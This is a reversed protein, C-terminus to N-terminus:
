EVDRWVELNTFREMKASGDAKKVTAQVKAVRTITGEQGACDGSVIRVKDGETPRDGDAYAIWEGASQKKLSAKKTPVPPVPSGLNHSGQETNVEATGGSQSGPHSGCPTSTPVPAPSSDPTPATGMSNGDTGMYTNFIPFREDEQTDITGDNKANETGVTGETGQIEGMEAFRRLMEVPITLGWLPRTPTKEPQGNRANALSVDRSIDFKQKDRKIAGEDVLAREISSRNYTPRFTEEIHPWVSAMHIALGKIESSNNKKVLRCNWDGIKSETKLSSICELFGRISDGGESVDNFETCINQSVWQEIDINLDGAQCVLKAYHTVLALSRIVRLSAASMLPSFKDELEKIADPTYGFRILTPLAAGAQKYLTRLETFADKDGNRRKPVFLRLMRTRAPQSKEGFASNSTIMMASHPTQTKHGKGDPGMVVRPFGNYLSKITEDTEPDNKPDDLCYMLSGAIKLKNYMAPLSIRAVMGEDAMGMCALACEAMTSKGTQPDSNYLNLIPFCGQHAMIAQRNVAAAAYGLTMVALHINDPGFAAQMVELFKGLVQNSPPPVKPLPLYTEGEVVDSHWCWLSKEDMTINGQPDFQLGPFVWWGNKQQGVRDVLNYRKGEKDHRYHHLKARLLAQVSGNGLRTAIAGFLAKKLANSFKQASDFATNEIFIRKSTKDDARKFNLLLGGGDISNIEREIEFDFDALASFTILGTEKCKNWYGLEGRHPTPPNWADLQYRAEIWREEHDLREKIQRELSKIAETPDIGTELWDAIDGGHPCHPWLALPNLCITPIKRNRLEAHLAKFQNEGTIDHDPHLVLLPKIGGKGADIIWNSLLDLTNGWNGEGSVNTTATLGLTRYAEVCKEGGVYFVIGGEALTQAVEGERYLPWAHSGKGEVWAQKASDWHYPRIRKSKRNQEYVPRRDSWQWRVVKGIPTGDARIYPYEIAQESDEGDTHAIARIENYYIETSGVNEYKYDGVVARLGHKDATLTKRFQQPKQANRVFVLDGIKLCDLSKQPVVDWQPIDPKKSCRLSSFHPMHKYKKAMGKPAFMKRNDSARKSLEEWGDPAIETRGCIVLDILFNENKRISCWSPKGCLPCPEQASVYAISNSM